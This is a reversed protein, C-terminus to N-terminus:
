LIKTAKTKSKTDDELEGIEIVTKPKVSYKKTTILKCIQSDDLIFEDLVDMIFKVLNDIDPRSVKWLPVGPRLKNDRKKGVFHQLPRQTYFNLTLYVGGEFPKKPAKSRIKERIEVKDERNPDFVKFNAKSFRPRQQAIPQGPVTIKIM